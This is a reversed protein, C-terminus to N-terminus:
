ETTTEPPKFVYGVFVPTGYANLGMAVQQRFDLDLAKAFFSVPQRGDWVADPPVSGFDKTLLRLAFTMDVRCLTTRCNVQLDTIELGLAKQAIENVIRTEMDPSWYPDRDEAALTRENAEIIPALAPSAARLDEANQPTGRPPPTAAIVNTNPEPPETPASPKDAPGNDRADPRAEASDSVIQTEIAPSINPTVGPPTRVLVILFGVALLTASLVIIRVSM